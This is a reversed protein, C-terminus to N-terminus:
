MLCVQKPVQTAAEEIFTPRGKTEEAYEKLKQGLSAGGQNAIEEM